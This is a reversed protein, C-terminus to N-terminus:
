LRREADQWSSRKTKEAAGTISTLSKTAIELKLPERKFQKAANYVNYLHPEVDFLLSYTSAPGAHANLYM